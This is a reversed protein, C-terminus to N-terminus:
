FARGNSDSTELRYWGRDPGSPLIQAALRNNDVVFLRGAPRRQSHAGRRIWWAFTLLPVGMIAGSITITLPDGLVM